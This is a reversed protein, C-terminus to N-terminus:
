ILSLLMDGSESKCTKMLQREESQGLWGFVNQSYVTTQVKCFHGGNEQFIRM